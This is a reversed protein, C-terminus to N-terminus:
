AGAPPWSDPSQQSNYDTPRPRSVMSLAFGSATILAGAMVVIGNGDAFGSIAAALGACGPLLAVVAPADNRGVPMLLMVGFLLSLMLGTTDM